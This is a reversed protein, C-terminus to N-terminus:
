DGQEMVYRCDSAGELVWRLRKVRIKPNYGVMKWVDVDCYLKCIDEAGKEIWAEALPCYSERTSGGWGIKPLDNVLGFNKLTPSLGMGTIEKRMREGRDLGFRRVAERLLARGEKEGYKEVLLDAFHHFMLGFLRAMVRVQGAAEERTLVGGEDTSPAV